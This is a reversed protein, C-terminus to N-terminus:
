FSSLVLLKIWSFRFCRHEHVCCGGFRGAQPRVEMEPDEAGDLDSEFDMASLAKEAPM